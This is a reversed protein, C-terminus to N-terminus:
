RGVENTLRSSLTEHIQTYSFGNLMLEGCMDLIAKAQRPAIPYAIVARCVEKEWGDKLEWAEPMPPGDVYLKRSM